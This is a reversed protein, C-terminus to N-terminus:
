LTKFTVSNFYITINFLLSSM